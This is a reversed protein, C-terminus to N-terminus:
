QKESIGRDSVEPFLDEIRKKSIHFLIQSLLTNYAFIAEAYKGLIAIFEESSMLRNEAPEFEMFNNQIARLKKNIAGTEEWIMNAISAYKDEM